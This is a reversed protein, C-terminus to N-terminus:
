VLDKGVCEPSLIQVLRGIMLTAKICLALVLAAVAGVLMFALIVVLMPGWLPLLLWKCKNLCRCESM